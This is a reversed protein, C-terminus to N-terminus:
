QPVWAHPRPHLARCDQVGPGSEEEKRKRTERGITYKVIEKPTHLIIPFINESNTKEQHIALYQPLFLRTALTDPNKSARRFAKSLSIPLHQLFGCSSLALLVGSRGLFVDRSGPQSAEEKQREQDFIEQVWWQEDAVSICSKLPISSLPQIPLSRNLMRM